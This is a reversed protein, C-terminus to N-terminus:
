RVVVRSFQLIKRPHHHLSTALLSSATAPRHAEYLEDTGHTHQQWVDFDALAQALLQYCLKAVPKDPGRGGKEGTQRDAQRRNTQM